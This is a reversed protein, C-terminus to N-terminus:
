SKSGGAFGLWGCVAAGALMLTTFPNKLAWKAITPSHKILHFGGTIATAAGATTGVAGIIKDQRSMPQGTVKEITEEGSGNWGLGFTAGNLFKQMFINNANARIDDKLGIGNREKYLDLAKAKLANDDLDALEPYVTKLTEKFKEFAAAIQPQDDKEIKEKLADAAYQVAQLPGNIKLDNARGKETYRVNRDLQYDTWQDMYEFMSAPNYGGAFPVASANNGANPATQTAQPAQPAQTQASPAFYQPIGGFGLNYANSISNDYNFNFGSGYISSNMNMPDYAVCPETALNPIIAAYYPNGLSIPNIGFSNTCM